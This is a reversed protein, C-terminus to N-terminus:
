SGSFGVGSGILIHLNNTLLMKLNLIFDIKQFFHVTRVRSLQSIPAPVQLCRQALALLGRKLGDGGVGLLAPELFGHVSLILDAFM